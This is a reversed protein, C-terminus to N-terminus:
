SKLLQNFLIKYINFFIDRVNEYDEDTAKRINM